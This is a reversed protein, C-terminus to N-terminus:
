EYWKEGEEAVNGCMKLFIGCGSYKYGFLNELLSYLIDQRLFFLLVYTIQVYLKFNSILTEKGYLFM